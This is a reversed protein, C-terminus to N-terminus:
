TRWRGAERPRRVGCRSPPSGPPTTRWCSPRGPCASSRRAASSAPRCGGCRRPSQEHAREDAATLLPLLGYSQFVLATERRLDPREGLPVGGVLVRGSAPALLGGLTTLPTTKGSGSPGVLAVREGPAVDLSLHRM